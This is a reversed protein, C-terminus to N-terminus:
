GAEREALCEFNLKTINTPEVRFWANIAENEPDECEAVLLGNPLIQLRSLKWKEGDEDAFIIDNGFSECATYIWGDCVFLEKQEEDLPYGYEAEFGIELVREAGYIECHSFSSRSQINLSNKM